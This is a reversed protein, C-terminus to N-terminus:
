YDILKLKKAWVKYKWQNEDIIDFISSEERNLKLMYDKLVASYIKLNNPNLIRTQENIIEFTYGYDQL